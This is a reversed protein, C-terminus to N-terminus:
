QLVFFDPQNIIIRVQLLFPFSRCFLGLQEKTQVNMEKVLVDLFEDFEFAEKQHKNRRNGQTQHNDIFSSFLEIVKESTLKPIGVGQFKFVRQIDPNLELPGLLLDEYKSIKMFRSILEDLDHLTCLIYVNEFIQMYLKIDKLKDSLNSLAKIEFHPRYVRLQRWDQVQCQKFLERQVKECSVHEGRTHITLIIEVIKAEIVPFKSPTPTAPESESSAQHKISIKSILEQRIGSEMTTLQGSQAKSASPTQNKNEQVTKKTTEGETKPNNRDSQTNDLFNDLTLESSLLVNDTKPFLVPVRPHKQQMKNDRPVPKPNEVIVGIKATQQPLRFLPQISGHTFLPQISGHTFLPQVSGHTFPPLPVTQERFPRLLYPQPPRPFSLSTLSPINIDNQPLTQEKEGFTNSNITSNQKSYDTFKLESNLIQNRNDYSIEDNDNKVPPKHTEMITETEKETNKSQIRKGRSGRARKKGFPKSDKNNNANTNDMKTLRLFPPTLM